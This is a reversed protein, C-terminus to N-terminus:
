GNKGKARQFIKIGRRDIHAILQPNDLNGYDVLDFFYPMTTEENLFDGLQAITNEELCEGKIALDVDAGPKYNGKARSGFLIVTEIDKFRGVAQVIQEINKDALGYPM